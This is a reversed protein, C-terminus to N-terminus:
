CSQACFRGGTCNGFSNCSCRARRCVGDRLKGDCDEDTRNCCDTVGPNIGADNDDCDGKKSTFGAPETCAERTENPDGYDDDDRDRYFAQKSTRNPDNPCEDNCDPTGDGDSDTDAAGCGCAGPSIKEPDNPCDDRCDEAGDGDSDVDPTGCGCIGPETKNSDDPCDDRCNPAGDGDDDFGEDTEGDCDNDVGDCVEESPETNNRCDTWTGDTCEAIGLGCRGTREGCRRMEGTSCPCDENASGDCDEDIRDEDCLETSPAVRGECPGWTGDTRCTRVGPECAGQSEGCRLKQGPTCDSPGADTEGLESSDSMTAADTDATDTGTEADPAVEDGGGNPKACGVILSMSVLIAVGLITCPRRSGIVGWRSDRNYRMESGRSFM